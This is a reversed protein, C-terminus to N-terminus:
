NDNSALLFISLNWFFYDQQKYQSLNPCIRPCRLRTRIVGVDYSSICIKSSWRSDDFYYSMWFRGPRQAATKQATPGHVTDPWTAWTTSAEKAVVLLGLVDRLTYVWYGGGLIVPNQKLKIKWPSVPYNITVTDILGKVTIWPGREQDLFFLLFFFGCGLLFLPFSSFFESTSANKKTGKSLQICQKSSSSRM